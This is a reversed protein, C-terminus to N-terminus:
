PTPKIKDKLLKIIEEKEQIIKQLYEKEKKLNSIIDKTHLNNNVNNCNEQKIYTGTNENFSNLIMDQKPFLDQISVELIEALKPLKSIPFTEKVLAERLGAVSYNLQKAVYDQNWKRDIRQKTKRISEITNFVMNNDSKNM